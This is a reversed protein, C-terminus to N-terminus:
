LFFAEIYQNSGNLVNQVIHDSKFTGLAGPWEHDMIDSGYPDRWKEWAIQRPETYDTKQHM